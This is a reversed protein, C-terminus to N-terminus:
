GDDWRRALRAASAQARAELAAVRHMRCANLAPMLGAHYGTRSLLHVARSLDDVAREHRPAKGLLEKGAGCLYRTRM